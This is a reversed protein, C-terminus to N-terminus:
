LIIFDLLLSLWLVIEVRDSWLFLVLNLLLQLLKSLLFFLISSKSLHLLQRALIHGFDLWSVVMLLSKWLLLRWLVNRVSRLLNLMLNVFSIRYFQSRSVWWFVRVDFVVHKFLVDQLDKLVFISQHLGPLWLFDHDSLFNLLQSCFLALLSDHKVFFNM